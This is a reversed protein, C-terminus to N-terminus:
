GTETQHGSIDGTLYFFGLLVGACLFSLFFFATHKLYLLYVTYDIGNLRLVDKKLDIKHVVTIWNCLFKCCNLNSKKNTVQEDVDPIYEKIVENIIKERELQNYQNMM